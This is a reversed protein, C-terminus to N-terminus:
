LKTPETSTGPKGLDKQPGLLEAGDQIQVLIVFKVRNSLNPVSRHVICPHFLVADGAAVEICVRRDDPISAEDIAVQHSEDHSHDFWGRKHSGAVLEMSGYHRDVDRMPLWIRWARSSETSIVDQHFSLQYASEHPLDARFYPWILPARYGRRTLFGSEAFRLGIEASIREVIYFRRLLPFLYRRYEEDALMVDAFPDAHQRRIARRGIEADCFEGVVHEFEALGAATVLGHLVTFGHEDLAREDVIPDSVLM